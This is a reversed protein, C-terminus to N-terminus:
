FPLDDNMVEQLPEPKRNVNSWSVVEFVPVLVDGFDKHRYSSSALKVIPNGRHLNTMATQMLKGIATRGGKSGTCYLVLEGTRVNELVLYSQLTWPDKVIGNIKPWSKADREPLDDQDPMQFGDIARGVRRDVPKGDIFKVGGYSWSECHVLFTDDPKVVDERLMWKGKACKLYDFGSFGDGVVAEVAKALKAAQDTTLTLANSIEM